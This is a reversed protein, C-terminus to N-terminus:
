KRKKLEKALDLSCFFNDCTINRGKLGETLQPVIRKGQEREAFEDKRGIYVEANWLYSNEADCAAWINIGYRDPKSPNYQRFPCKGRFPVLQEDVTVTSINYMLPLREVWINWIDRIPALKDTSRRRARTEKDDFRLFTSYKMFTELSMTARFIPRRYTDDWLSGLSEGHSKYIGVLLRLGYFARLNELSIIDGSGLVRNAETNGKKTSSNPGSSQQEEAEDEYDSDSLDYHVSLHDNEGDDSESSICDSKEGSEHGYFKNVLFATCKKDM